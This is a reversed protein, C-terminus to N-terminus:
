ITDLWSDFDDLVKSKTVSHSSSQTDHTVNSSEQLLDDLVDDFSTTVPNGSLQLPKSKTVSYSSSQTDRPVVKVDQPQNMLNSSEQLLDDLVDDFSATVPHGSSQPPVTSSAQQSKTFNHNPKYGSSDIFKADSCSDLLMDLEAEAAAAEFKVTSEMVRSEVSKDFHSSDLGDKVQNALEPGGSHFTADKHYTHSSFSTFETDTDEVKESLDNFGVDESMDAAAESELTTQFQGRDDDIRM